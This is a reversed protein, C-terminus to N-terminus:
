REQMKSLKQLKLVKSVLIFLTTDKNLNSLLEDAETVDLNSLFFLNIDSTSFNKLAEYVMKTGFYSGGIGISVINRYKKGSFSKFKGSNIDESLKKLKKQQKIEKKTNEDLDFFTDRMAPHLVKRNESINCINGSCLDKFKERINLIKALRTLNALTNQDLINRSYDLYIKESEIHFIDSKLDVRQNSFKKKCRTSDKKLKQLQDLFIKNM